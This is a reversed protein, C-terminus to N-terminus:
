GKQWPRDDAVKVDPTNALILVTQQEGMGSVIGSRSGAPHPARGVPVFVLFM